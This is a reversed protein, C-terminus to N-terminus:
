GTTLLAAGGVIEAVLYGVVCGALRISLGIGSGGVVVLAIKPLSISFADSALIPPSQSYFTILYLYTCVAGVWLYSAAFFLTRTRRHLWLLVTMPVIAVMAPWIIDDQYGIQFVAATFFAAVLCTLGLAHLGRVFSSSITRAALHSPLGLTM